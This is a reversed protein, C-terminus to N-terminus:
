KAQKLFAEYAARQEAEKKNKGSGRGFTIGDIVVDIVFLKDHAPGTESVVKYVLSKRTTQVCEQLATKYDDYFIHNDDIFPIVVKTIYDKAVLFGKDLFIAGIISEFIDAIITANVDSSQGKGVRIYPIYGVVKAYEYLANECVYRARIKSLEGENLSYKFYLYESVVASLISDGLFELREYNECGHENSYSKHTMASVFNDSNLEINYKLLFDM